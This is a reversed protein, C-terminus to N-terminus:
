HSSPVGAHCGARFAGHLIRARWLRRPAPPHSPRGSAHAGPDLTNYRQELVQRGRGLPILLRSPSTPRRPELPATPRSIHTVRHQRRGSPGHDDGSRPHSSFTINEVAAATAALRFASRVAEVLLTGRQLVHLTPAPLAIANVLPWSPTAAPPSRRVARRGGRRAPTSNYTRIRELLRLVNMPWFHDERCRGPRVHRRARRLSPEGALLAREMPETHAQFNQLREPLAPGLSGQDAMPWWCPPMPFLIRAPRPDSPPAPRPTSRHSRSSSVHHDPQPLFMSGSASGFRPMREDCDVAHTGKQTVIALGSCSSTTSFIPPSGSRRRRRQCRLARNRRSSVRYPRRRARRLPAPTLSPKAQSPPKPAGAQGDLRAGLRPDQGQVLADGDRDPWSPSSSQISREHRQGEPDHGEPALVCRSRTRGPTVNRRSGRCTCPEPPSRPLSRRRRHRRGAAPPRGDCGASRFRADHDAGRRRVPRFVRRRGDAFGFRVPHPTQM